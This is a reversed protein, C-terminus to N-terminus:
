QHLEKRIMISGANLLGSQQKTLALLDEIFKDDTEVHDMVTNYPQYHLVRRKLNAETMEPNYPTGVTVLRTYNIFPVESFGSFGFCFQNIRSNHQVPGGASGM